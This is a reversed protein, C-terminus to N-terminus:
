AQRQALRRYASEIQNIITQAEHPPDVFKSNWWLLHEVAEDFEMGCEAAMTALLWARPRRHGEGVAQTLLLFLEEHSGTGPYASFTERGPKSLELLPGDKRCVLVKRRGPNRSHFTGPLRYMGANHLFSIDATPAHKRTWAKMAITVWAGKIPAMPIHFHVSRGGTNYEEYGLGTAQLWARFETPDHSDFDMFLTDAYVECTRLNATSGQQRIQAAVADDYAVISRFGTHASVEALPVLRPPGSRRISARIEVWLNM